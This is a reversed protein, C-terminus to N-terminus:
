SQRLLRNMLPPCLRDAWVLLKGPFSCIVEDKRKEIASMAADAVQEPSWSGFSRSAQNPDTDILSDFFDSRTTSPSVLTVQIGLKSIEARLADSWGHIAFKSACYESKNPVARHGLVSSINCIVPSRGKALAPLLSRTLEVPAFFNVEMVKRLREENAESFPGIAGSGANNVLLDVAGGGLQTAVQVIQQRTKADTIDGVVQHVKAVDPTVIQDLCERRRAVAVVHAGRQLLREALARGIGSSAGTVICVSDTSDFRMANHTRQLLM